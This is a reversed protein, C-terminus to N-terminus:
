AHVAETHHAEALTEDPTLDHILGLTRLRGLGNRFGSSGPERDAAAAVQDRTMIGPWADLIVRLITREALGLRAMWFEVLEGGSPPPPVDGIYALGAPLIELHDGRTIMEASRLAGLANRFGSSSAARGTLIATQQRTLGAPHQALVTLIEREAKGLRPAGDPPGAPQPVPAPPEAPRPRPTRPGAAKVPRAPLVPAPVPVPVPAPAPTIVRGLVAGSVATTIAEARGLLEGAFRELAALDEDTIVRVTEIRPPQQRAALQRELQKIRARLVVPDDHGAQETIAAMRAGLAELNISALTSPTAPAASMVPTRGSDFTARQRFQIRQRPPQGHGALWQPSVIWAEGNALGALSAVLEGGEDYQAVWDAVAKRDRTHTTRMVILTEVQSLANKNVVASRQSILAIGLGFARGQKIIKTWIGVCRAQEARVVQPVIEDAEELVIMRPAPTARHLRFLAHGLETLFRMQAADSPFDSVDLICTLNQSTILEAVLAGSEPTLPLDGHLGGLVPIPLGPGTGDASSRIGWWDGKPDIVVLPLGLRHMEEVFVAAANSKGAGRIALIALTQTIVDPPLELRGGATVQLGDGMTAPGTRM